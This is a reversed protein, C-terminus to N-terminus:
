EGDQTALSTDIVEYSHEINVGGRTLMISASCYKEASLAVARAVKSETLGAGSVIFHMKIQEFVRPPEEVRTASLEVRCGEIQERGKKLITVVDFSACAGAGILVLEMPRPGADQGGAEPAGDITITHGSGSTASFQVGQNWELTAQM